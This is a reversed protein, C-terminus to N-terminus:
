KTPLRLIYVQVLNRDQQHIRKLDGESYISFDRTKLETWDNIFYVYDGEIHKKLVHICVARDLITEQKECFNHWQSAQSRTPLAVASINNTLTLLLITFLSTKM